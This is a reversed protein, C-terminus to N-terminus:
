GFSITCFNVEAPPSNCGDIGEGPRHNVRNTEDRVQASPEVTKSSSSLWTRALLCAGAEVPILHERTTRRM